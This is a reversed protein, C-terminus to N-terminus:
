DYYEGVRTKDKEMSKFREDEENWEKILQEEDQTLGTIDRTPIIDADMRVSPADQLYRINELCRIRIDELYKKPNKNEYLDDLVPNLSYDPGFNERFPIGHPLENNLLVDNMIGTEYTWLRSVNKPTYGGGGVVLMPLGFSKVFRACEGHAKININFAGLRDHGLSDAGCQLIICTPRYSTILPEIISKFLNIYSDDDIGDQLPVNLAYHKGRDIGDEDVDGTGPFFLEKNYKHFSVTFVRDTTYFAEQVGDGHHLDIDIYLLRPHFRLLNLAALVIDNVYCFGSPQSKKAHHLGGSWNIAIDSQGNILKRSADLSAGAYYASYDYLGQFIPCDDGINFTDLTGRPFKNTNEPTVKELFDIYDKSHFDTLEEKTAKRTEYLDMIKHLGYSSVLHDTLMLRFPKMPHKVGYHYRSVNGNFHYSVRPKNIPHSNNLQFLPYSEKTKQDYQFTQTPSSTTLTSM